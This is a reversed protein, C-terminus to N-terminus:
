CLLSRKETITIDNAIHNHIHNEINNITDYRKVSKLVIKINMIMKIDM